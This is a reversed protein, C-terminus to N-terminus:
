DPKNANRSSLGVDSIKYFTANLFNNRLYFMKKEKTHCQVVSYARWLTGAQIIKLASSEFENKCHNITM